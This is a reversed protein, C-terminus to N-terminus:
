PAAVVLPPLPDDMSAVTNLVGDATQWCVMREVRDPLAETTIDIRYILGLNEDRTLLEARVQLGSEVNNRFHELCVEAFHTDRALREGPAPALSPFAFEDAMAIESLALLLMAPVLACLKSRSM